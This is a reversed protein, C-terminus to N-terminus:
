RRWPSRDDRDDVLVGHPLVRHRPHLPRRAGRPRHRARARAAGHALRVEGDGVVRAPVGRRPVRRRVPGVREVPVAHGALQLAAPRAGRSQRAPVPHVDVLISSRRRLMAVAIAPRAATTKVPRDQPRHGSRLPAPPAARSTSASRRRGGRAARREAGPRVVVKLGDNMACTILVEHGLHEVLVVRVALRGDAAIPWTSRGCASRTAVPSSRARRALPEDAAHRHVHRRVGDGTPRLGGAAHRGAAARGRNMVAVRSGM